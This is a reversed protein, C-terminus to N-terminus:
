RSFTLFLNQEVGSTYLWKRSIIFSNLVCSHTGRNEEVAMRKAMRVKRRKSNISFADDLADFGQKLPVLLENQSEVLKQGRAVFDFELRRRVRVRRDLEPM